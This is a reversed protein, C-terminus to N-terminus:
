RIRCASSEPWRPAAQDAPSTNRAVMAAENAALESIGALGLRERAFQAVDEVVVVSAKGPNRWSVM